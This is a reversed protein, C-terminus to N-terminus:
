RKKLNAFATRMDNVVAPGVLLYITALYTLFGSAILLVVGFANIPVRLSLWYVVGGMVASSSM